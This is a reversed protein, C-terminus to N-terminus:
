HRLSRKCPHHKGDCSLMANCRQSPAAVLLLTLVSFVRSRQQPCIPALQLRVRKASSLANDLNDMQVSRQKLQAELQVARGTLLIRMGGLLARNLRGAGCRGYLMM